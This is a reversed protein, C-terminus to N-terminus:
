VGELVQLRAELDNVILQLAIIKDDVEIISNQFIYSLKYNDLAYLTTMETDSPELYSEYSIVMDDNPHAALIDQAIHGHYLVNDVMTGGKGNYKYNIPKPFDRLYALGDTFYGYVDKTRSDSTINWTTSGPKGASNSGLQLQYTPSTDGLGITFYGNSWLSMRKSYGTYFDIGYQNGTASRKSAIGEGSGESGFHLGYNLTGTNLNDNDIYFGPYGGAYVGGIRNSVAVFDFSYDNGGFRFGTSDQTTTIFSFFKYVTNSFADFLVGQTQDMVRFHNNYNDLTIYRYAATSALLVLEGGEGSTNQARINIQGANTYFADVVDLRVSGGESILRMKTVDSVQWIFPSNEVNEFFFGGTGRTVISTTTNPGGNSRIIRLAFDTYTDDAHFDIYCYRNGTANAGLELSTTANTGTSSVSLIGGATHVNQLRLTNSAPDYVFDSDTGIGSASTAFLVASSTLTKPIIVTDNQDLFLSVSQNLVGGSYIVVKQM